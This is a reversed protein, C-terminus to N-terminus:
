RHLLFGRPSPPLFALLWERESGFSASYKSIKDGSEKLSHAEERLSQIKYRQELTLHAM